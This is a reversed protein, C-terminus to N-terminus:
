VIHGRSARTGPPCQNATAPDIIFRSRVQSALVREHAENVQEADLLERQPLIGNTACAELM